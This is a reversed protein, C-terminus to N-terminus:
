IHTLKIIIGGLIRLEKFAARQDTESMVIVGQGLVIGSVYCNM